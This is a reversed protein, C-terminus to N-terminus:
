EIITETLLGKFDPVDVHSVHTYLTEKAEEDENRKRECRIRIRGPVGKVGKSWIFGNLNPDVRVDKTGLNATVFKKIRRIARPARKRFTSFVYVYPSVCRVM